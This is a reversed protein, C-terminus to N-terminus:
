QKDWNEETAYNEDVEWFSDSKFNSMFFGFDPHCIWSLSTVTFWIFSLTTLVFFIFSGHIETGKATDVTYFYNSFFLTTYYGSVLYLCWCLFFLINLSKRTETIAGLFRRLFSFSNGWEKIFLYKDDEIKVFCAPDLRRLRKAEKISEKKQEYYSKTTFMSSPAIIYLNREYILKSGNALHSMKNEDNFKRKLEHLLEVPINGKYLSAPLFKLRYKKCLEKVESKTYIDGNHIKKLRKIHERDGNEVIVNANTSNPFANQLMHLDEMENGSLLLKVESIAAAENLIMDSKISEKDLVKKIM